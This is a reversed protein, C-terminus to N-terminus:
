KVNSYNYIIANAPVILTNFVWLVIIGVWYVGNAIGLTLLNATIPVIYWCVVTFACSFIFWLVGITVEQAQTIQRNGKTQMGYIFFIIPVVILALIWTLIIGWWLLNGLTSLNTVSTDEVMADIMASAFYSSLLTYFYGLIFVGTGGIVYKYETM